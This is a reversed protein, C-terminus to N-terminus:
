LKIDFSFLNPLPTKIYWGSREPMGNVAISAALLVLLVVFVLRAALGRIPRELHRVEVVEVDSEQADASAWLMAENSGPM